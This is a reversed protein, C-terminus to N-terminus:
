QRRKIKTKREGGPLPWRAAIDVETLSVSEEGSERALLAAFGIMVGNDVCDAPPPVVLERVCSLRRLERQLYQNAAVGGGLVLTSPPGKRLLKEVNRCLHRVATRQFADAVLAAEVESTPPHQEVLRAVSAKLGSFSFDLRDRYAPRGFLPENFMRTADSSKNLAALRELAAGPHGNRAMSPVFPSLLRWVKDFAEGVNDDLSQGLVQMQSWQPGDVRLLLTHGGSVVLATFPWALDPRKMLPMLAHAAVHHVAWLPRDLSRALDRAKNLGVVLCPALGPGVTVAVAEVAEHAGPGAKKLTEEVVRDIVEAHARKAENPYVGGFRDVLEGVFLRHTSLSCHFPSEMCQSQLSQSLVVAAGNAAARGVVAAGTDDCSTEIALILSRALRKTTM